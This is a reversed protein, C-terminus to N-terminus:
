TFDPCPMRRYASPSVGFHQRFQRSLHCADAFDTEVAIRTLTADSERLMRAAEELRITRHYTQPSIGTAEKFVRHFRSPSLHCFDAMANVSMGAGATEHLRKLLPELRAHTAPIHPLAVLEDLLNEMLTAGLRTHFIRERMSANQSERLQNMDGKKLRSTEKKISLTEREKLADFCANLAVVAKSSLLCPMQFRSLLSAHGESGHWDARLWRVVIPERRGDWVSQRFFGAPLAIGTGERVWADHGEHWYLRYRGRVVWSFTDEARTLWTGQYSAAQISEGCTMEGFRLAGTPHCLLPAATKNLNEAHM